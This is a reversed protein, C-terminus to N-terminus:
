TFFGTECSTSSQWLHFDKYYILWIREAVTHVTPAKVLDLSFSCKQEKLSLFQFYHFFSHTMGSPYVGIFSRSAFIILMQCNFLSLFLSPFVKQSWVNNRHVSRSKWSPGRSLSPSSCTKPILLLHPPHSWSTRWGSSWWPSCWSAGWAGHARPRKHADLLSWTRMTVEYAEHWM